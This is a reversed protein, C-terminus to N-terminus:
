TSNPQAVSIPPMELEVFVGYLGDPVKPDGRQKGQAHLTCM